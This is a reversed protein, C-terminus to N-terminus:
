NVRKERQELQHKHIFYVLLGVAALVAIGTLIHNLTIGGKVDTILEPTSLIEAPFPSQVKPISMKPISKVEIVPSIIKGYAIQDIPIPTIM